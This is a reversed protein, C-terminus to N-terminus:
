VIAGLGLTLLIIRRGVIRGSTLELDREKEM